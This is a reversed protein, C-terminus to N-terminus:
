RGSALAILFGIISLARKDGTMSSNVSEDKMWSKMLRRAVNFSSM